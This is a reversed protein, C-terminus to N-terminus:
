KTLHYNIEVKANSLLTCSNSIYFIGGYWWRYLPIKKKFLM